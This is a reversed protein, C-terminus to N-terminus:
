VEFSQEDALGLKFAKIVIGAINRADLKQMLSIRHNEVTSVSVKLEVAMENSTMQKLIMGLIDKERRTLSKKIALSTPTTSQARSDLKDRIIPEIYTGGDYVTTIATSLKYEDTNKLLYGAVGAEIMLIAYEVLNYGTIAIIKVEPYLKSVLAALEDGRVDTLEIDMLLIDPRKKQLGSILAAGSDYTCGTEMGDITKLMEVLGNIVMKHDDVIDVRIM